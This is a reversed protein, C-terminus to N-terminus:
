TAAQFHLRWKENAQCILQLEGHLRQGHLHAEFRDSTTLLVEYVGWDWRTVAGRDQSVPGEYDLYFLRHRPLEHAMLVQSPTVEQEVCWARADSGEEFLLDFHSPRGLAPGSEHWLIVYRPM